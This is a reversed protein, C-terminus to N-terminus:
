ALTPVLTSLDNVRHLRHEGARINLTDMVQSVLMSVPKWGRVTPNHLVITSWLLWPKNLEVTDDLTVGVPKKQGLETWHLFDYVFVCILFLCVAQM